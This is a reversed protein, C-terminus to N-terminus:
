GAYGAIDWQAITWLDGGCASTRPTVRPYAVIMAIMAPTAQWSVSQRVRRPLVCGYIHVAPHCRYLSSHSAGPRNGQFPTMEGRDWLFGRLATDGATTSAGIVQGHNNIWGAVSFSGGLAGLDEMMGTQWLFAHFSQDGALSTLGVIQGRANITRPDAFSGGLTGVDQLGNGEWLFISLDPQGFSPNIVSNLYSSGVLQGRDNLALAGSPGSDPGGLTGLDVMSGKQWVFAHWETPSTSINDGFPLLDPIANQAIGAIQGWDNIDLALSNTGGLTGLDIIHGGTWLVAHIIPVGTAPDLTGTDASGVVDGRSNIAIPFGGCGHPLRPLPSKRGHEWKFAFGMLFQPNYPCPIATDAGGVVMGSENIVVSSGNTFSNPGGFTGLDVFRYRLHKDPSGASGHQAILSATVNSLVFM